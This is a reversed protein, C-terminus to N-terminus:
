RAGAFSVKRLMSSTARCGRHTHSTKTGRPIGRKSFMTSKMGGSAFLASAPTAITVLSNAGSMVQFSTSHNRLFHGRFSITLPM